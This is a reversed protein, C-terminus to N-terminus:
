GDGPTLREIFQRRIQNMREPNNIQWAKMRQRRNEKSCTDSCCKYNKRAPFDAGCIKCTRNM